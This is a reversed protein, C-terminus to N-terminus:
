NVSDPAEHEGEALEPIVREFVAVICEAMKDKDPESLFLYSKADANSAPDPSVFVTLTALSSVRGAEVLAAVEALSKLMETVHEASSQTMGSSIPSRLVSM